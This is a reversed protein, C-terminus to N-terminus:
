YSKIKALKDAYKQYVAEQEAVQGMVKQQMTENAPIESTAKDIDNNCKNIKNESSEISNRIKKQKKELDKIYDMKEKQETSGADLTSLLKNHEILAASVSTLENNQIVINEKEKAIDTKNSEISKQLRSKEKELSSLDKQISRLKKDEADAQDKVLAIYQDKAFDKLYKQAKAHEAPTSSRDIYQDKKLEFSVILVLLSDKNMLKSYVNMPNPSISKKEAGFITSESNETVVKSKTGSQLEKIWLKLTKEYEVEPITVSLGPMQSKGIKLSDDSVIIPRQAKIGAFSFLIFLILTSISKM